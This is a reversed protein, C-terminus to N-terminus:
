FWFSVYLQFVDADFGFLPEDGVPGGTVVDRFDQYDFSMFDYNFNATGREVFGWSEVPMDYTIGFRLSQSNFTSLEKDRAKFNQQDEYDFLDSYFDAGTQTYFRYSFDLLWSRKTSYTYGLAANWAEVGWTDSFVRADGYVASGPRLFYRGGLSFATTTRTNPYVELQWDFGEASGDRFRVQRYPNNLSGGEDTIGEFNANMIFNKTVVQSVGLRYSRRKNEEEFNPDVVPNGNGDKIMRRVIDDGRAFGMRVTTLGGFIEQSVGFYLTQAEFDNEDSQTYGASLITGDLLYDGGISIEKREEEYPSAYSLVDISASSISDVYYNAYASFDKTVKKRFLISPGTIQVNDGDYSHYLVDARDEPLVQAVSLSSLGLQALLTLVCLERFRYSV